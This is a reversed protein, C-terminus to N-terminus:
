LPASDAIPVIQDDDGNMVLTPADITKLDETFHAAAFRMVVADLRERFGVEQIAVLAGM